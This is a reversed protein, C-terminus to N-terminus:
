GAIYINNRNVYEWAKKLEVRHASSRNVSIKEWTKEVQEKNHITPEKMYRKVRKDVKILLKQENEDLRHVIKRLRNLRDRVAIFDINSQYAVNTHCTPVYIGHIFLCHANRKEDSAFVKDCIHCKM